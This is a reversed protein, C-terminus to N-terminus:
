LKIKFYKFLLDLLLNYLYKYFKLQFLKIYTIKLKRINKIDLNKIWKFPLVEKPKNTSMIIM